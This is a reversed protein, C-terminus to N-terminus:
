VTPWKRKCKNRRPLRVYEDPYINLYNRGGKPLHWVEHSTYVTAKGRAVSVDWHAGAPISRRSITLADAGHFHHGRKWFKDGADRRDTPRGYLKVFEQDRGTQGLAAWDEATEFVHLPLARPDDIGTCEPPQRIWAEVANLCNSVDPNGRILCFLGKHQVFEEVTLATRRAAPDRSPDRRVYVETFAFTAVEHRHLTRYLGHAADVSLLEVKREAAEEWM